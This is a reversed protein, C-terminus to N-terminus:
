ESENDLHTLCQMQIEDAPILPADPHNIGECRLAAEEWDSPERLHHLWWPFTKCQVPRGEYVTCRKQDLFICDGSGPRDLLALQGEVLRTYKRIFEAPSLQLHNALNEIDTASLYVYGPEGTCCQGCGTCMFRLGEKFWVALDEMLDGRKRGSAM